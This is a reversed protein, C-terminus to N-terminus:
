GETRVGQRNAFWLDVCRWYGPLITLMSNRNSRFYLLLRDEAAPFVEQFCKQLAFVKVRILPWFRPHRSTTKM